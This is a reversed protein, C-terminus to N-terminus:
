LMGLKELRAKTHENYQDPTLFNFQRERANELGETQALDYMEAVVGGNCTRELLMQFSAVDGDHRTSIHHVIAQFKVGSSTYEIVRIM